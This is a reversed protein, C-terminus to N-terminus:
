LRRSPADARIAGIDLAGHLQDGFCLPRQQQGAAPNV